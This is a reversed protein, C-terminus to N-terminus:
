NSQILFDMKIEFEFKMEYNNITVEQATENFQTFKELLIRILRRDQSM